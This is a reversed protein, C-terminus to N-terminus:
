CRLSRCLGFLGGLSCLLLAPSAPEPVLTLTLPGRDIVVAPSTNM